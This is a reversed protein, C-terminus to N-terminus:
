NRGILPFPDEETSTAKEPPEECLCVCIKLLLHVGVTFNLACGKKLRYKRYFEYAGLCDFGVSICHFPVQEQLDPASDVDSDGNLGNLYKDLDASGSGLGGNRQSDDSGEPTNSETILSGPDHKFSYLKCALGRSDKTARMGKLREELAAIVSPRHKDRLDQLRAENVGQYGM